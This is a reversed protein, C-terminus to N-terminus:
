EYSAFFFSPRGLTHGRNYVKNEDPKIDSLNLNSIFSLDDFFYRTKNIEIYYKQNSHNYLFFRVNSIDIIINHLTVVHQLLTDSLLLGLLLGYLGSKTVSYTKNDVQVQIVDDLLYHVYETVRDIIELTLNLKGYSFTALNKDWNLIPYQIKSIFPAKFKVRKLMEEIVRYKINPFIQGTNFLEKIGMKPLIEHIVVDRPLTDLSM